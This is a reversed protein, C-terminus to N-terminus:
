GLIALSALVGFVRWGNNSWYRGTHIGVASERPQTRSQHLVWDSLLDPEAAGSGPSHHPHRVVCERHVVSLLLRVPRRDLWCEAGSELSYGQNVIV